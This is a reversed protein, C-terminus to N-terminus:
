NTERVLRAFESREAEAVGPFLARMAMVRRLRPVDARRRYISKLNNLMRFLQQATDIPDLFRANWDRLGTTRTYLGRCGEADLEAGGGFVDFFRTTDHGDRVVVHGPMGVVELSVGRSRAAEAAIVALTLPIGKGRQVVSHIFSNAPDDYSETDGRLVPGRPEVHAFLSNVVERTTTGRAARGIEEIARRTAEESAGELRTAVLGFAAVKDWPRSGDIFEGLLRWDEM